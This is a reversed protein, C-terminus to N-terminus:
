LVPEAPARAPTLGLLGVGPEADIQDLTLPNISWEGALHAPLDERLAFGPTETEDDPWMMSHLADEDMDTIDPLGIASEGTTVAGRNVLLRGDAYSFGREIVGSVARYWAVYDVVRYSGFAQCEGFELSLRVLVDELRAIADPADASFGLRTEVLTWGEVPPAIFTRISAANLEGAYPPEAYGLGAAWNAPITETLGLADAVMRTDDTPIAFWSTKYAFPAPSDPKAAAGPTMPSPTPKAPPPPPAPPRKPAPFVIGFLKKLM